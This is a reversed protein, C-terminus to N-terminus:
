RVSGAFVGFVFATILAPLALVVILVWIPVFV